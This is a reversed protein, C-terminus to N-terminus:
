SVTQLYQNEMNLFIPLYENMRRQFINTIMTTTRKVVQPQFCLLHYVKEYFRPRSTHQICNVLRNFNAKITVNGQRFRAEYDIRQRQVHQTTMATM